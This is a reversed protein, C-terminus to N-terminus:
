DYKQECIGKYYNVTDEIREKSVSQGDDTELYFEINDENLTNIIKKFNQLEKELSNGDSYDKPDCFLVHFARDYHPEGKYNIYGYKYKSEFSKIVEDNNNELDIYLNIIFHINYNDINNQIQKTLLM